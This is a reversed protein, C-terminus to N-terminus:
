ELELPSRSVHVAASLKKKSAGLSARVGGEAGSAGGRGTRARDRPYLRSSVRITM